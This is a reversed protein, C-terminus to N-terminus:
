LYDYKNSIYWPMARWDTAIATSKYASYIHQIQGPIKANPNRFLTSYYLNSIDAGIRKLHEHIATLTKGEDITAFTVLVKMDKLQDSNISIPEKIEVIDKHTVDITMFPLHGMNGAIIAGILSGSRGVGIVLKPLINDEEFRGILIHIGRRIKRWRIAWHRLQFYINVGLLIFLTTLLVISLFGLLPNGSALLGLLAAIIGITPMLMEVISIFEQKDRM